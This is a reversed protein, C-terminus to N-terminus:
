RANPSTLPPPMLPSPPLTSQTHHPPQPTMPRNFSPNAHSDSIHNNTNNNTITITNATPARPPNRPPAKDNKPTHVFTLPQETIPFLPLMNEHLCEELKTSQVAYTPCNNRDASTHNSSPGCSVCHAERPSPCTTTSHEKACTACCEDNLCKDRIHGYLQCKNCRIQELIDKSATVRSNSIFVCETLLKNAAAASTCTVKVNALKQNPARLEPKKIWLATTISHPPLNLDDEIQHLHEADALDFSGDCPVFCLIVKYPCPQIAASSCFHSTLIHKERNVTQFGNVSDLSDFELLIANRDMFRLARSNADPTGVAPPTPIAPNPLSPTSASPVGNPTEAPTGNLLSNLSSKLRTAYTSSKEKPAKADNSDYTIYLQREAIRLRNTIHQIYEPQDPSYNLRPPPNGTLTPNNLSNAYSPRTPLGFTNSPPSPLSATANRLETVSKLLDKTSTAISQTHPIASSLTNVIPQVEKAISAVTHSTSDLNRISTNITDITNSIGIIHKAQEATTAKIFECECEINTISTTNLSSLKHSIASVIDTSTNDTLKHLLLFGVVKITSVTAEPVNSDLSLAFLVNALTPASFNGNITILARQELYATAEEVNKVPGSSAMLAILEDPSPTSATPTKSSSASCTKAETQSSGPAEPM